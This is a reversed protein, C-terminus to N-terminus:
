RRDRYERPTQGTWRKFARHFASPESFGLRYAAEQVTTNPEDLAARAVRSLARAQVASFREGEERLRRRLSRASMGCRRAVSDMDPSMEFFREVILDEVQQAVRAGDDLRQLMRDAQAQLVEYLEPNPHLQVADLMSRPMVIGTHDCDFRVRDGFIRLYEAHYGPRPHEFRVELPRADLGAFMQGIRLLRTMGFDGRVRSCVPTTRPFNYVLTAREGEEILRSPECDSVIRYYRFFVQLGDRITRCHATLYGVVNFAALSAHEGMHLGLAEDGTMEVALEQLGDYTPLDVRLVPDELKAREFGARSLFDDGDVGGREVAEVLTRVLSISISM